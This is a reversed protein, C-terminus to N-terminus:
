HRKSPRFPLKMNPIGSKTDREIQLELRHKKGRRVITASSTDVAELKWDDQNVGQALRLLRNSNLDRIVAVRNNPTIVVGELRLKLPTQRVVPADVVQQPKEPPLRGEVFLPRNSIEEYAVLPRPSFRTISSSNKQNASLTTQQQKNNEGTRPPNFWQYYLLGSALGIAALLMFTLTNFFTRWPNM